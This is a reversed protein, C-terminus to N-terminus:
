PSAPPRLHQNRGPEVSTGRNMIQPYVDGLRYVWAIPWGDNRITLMVKAEPYPRQVKMSRNLIVWDTAQGGELLGNNKAIMETDVDPFGLLRGYLLCLKPVTEGAARRERITHAVLAVEEGWGLWPAKADGYKVEESVAYPMLVPRYAGACPWCRGMELLTLVICGALAAVQLPFRFRAVFDELVLMLGAVLVIGGPAVYRHGPPNRTLVFFVLYGLGCLLLWYSLNSNARPSVLFLLMVLGIVVTPWWEVMQWSCAMFYSVTHVLPNTTDFNVSLNNLPTTTIV